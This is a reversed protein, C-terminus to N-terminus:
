LGSISPQRVSGPSVQRTSDLALELLSDVALGLSRYIRRVPQECELSSEPSMFFSECIHSSLEAESSGEVCEPLTRDLELLAAEPWTEELAPATFRAFVPVWMGRTARSGVRGARHLLSCVRTQPAAGQRPCLSGTWGPGLAPSSPVSRGQGPPWPCLAPCDQREGAPLAQGSPRAGPPSEDELCLGVREGIRSKLTVAAKLMEGFLGLLRRLADRLGRRFLCVAPLLSDAVAGVRDPERLLLLGPPLEVLM